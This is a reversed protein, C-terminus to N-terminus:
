WVYLQINQGAANATLRKNERVLMWKLVWALVLAIFSFVASSAM